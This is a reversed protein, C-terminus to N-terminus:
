AYNFTYKMIETELVDWDKIANFGGKDDLVLNFYLKHDYCGLETNSIQPNTNASEFDIHNKKFFRKYKKIEEPHSCTYMILGIDKRKSLYQLVSKARGVFETPIESTDYNAHVITDHIDVAIYIKDWKKNKANEYAKKISLALSENTYRNTRYTTITHILSFVIITFIIIGICM